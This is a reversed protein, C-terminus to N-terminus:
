SPEKRGVANSSQSDTVRSGSEYVSYGDRVERSQLAEITM